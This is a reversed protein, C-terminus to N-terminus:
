VVTGLLRLVTRNLGLRLGLVPGGRLWRLGTWLWLRHLSWNRLGLVPWRGLGFRSRNRLGL